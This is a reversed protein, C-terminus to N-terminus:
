PDRGLEQRLAELQRMVGALTYPDDKAPPRGGTEFRPREDYDRGWRADVERVFEELAAPTALVRGVLAVLAAAPRGRWAGLLAPDDALRDLLVRTLTGDPDALRAALIAKAELVTQTDAPVPSAGRLNGAGARAVAGALDWARRRRIEQEIRGTEDDGPDPDPARPAGKTPDQTGDNM